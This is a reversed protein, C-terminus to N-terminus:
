GVFYGVLSHLRNLSGQSSRVKMAEIGSLIKVVSNNPREMEPRAGWLRAVSHEALLGEYGRVDQIAKM